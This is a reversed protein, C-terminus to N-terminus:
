NHNEFVFLGNVEGVFQLEYEDIKEGAKFICFEHDSKLATESTNGKISLTIGGNGDDECNLVKAGQAMRVSQKQKTPDLTVHFITKM